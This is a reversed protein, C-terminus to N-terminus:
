WKEFRDHVSIPYRNPFRADSSYVFNGGAMEQFGDGLHKGDRMVRAHLYEGRINRRVVELYVEGENVEFPGIDNEPDILIIEDVRSTIGNATCDGLKNRYVYVLLVKRKM